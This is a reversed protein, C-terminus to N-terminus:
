GGAAGMARGGTENILRHRGADLGRDGPAVDPRDPKPGATRRAPPGPPCQRLLVPRCLAAHLSSHGGRDPM